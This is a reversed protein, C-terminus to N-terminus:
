RRSAPHAILGPRAAGLGAFLPPVSMAGLLIVAATWGGVLDHLLGVLFPGGAAFLYGYSQVMSSLGSAVEADSSRLGILTLVLVFGINTGVGLLVAWLIPQSGPAVALGTLGALTIAAAVVVLPRQDHLRGALLPAGLSTPISVIGILSLLLGAEGPSTGHQEFITPLWTVLAYYVFSQTAMTVTLKWAIPERRLMALPVRASGPDHHVFQGRRLLLSAVLALAVPAAWSALSPRWGGLAHQLPVALGAALAAGSSLAMTYVGTLLGVRGPFDRKVLAPLLVNGLAAGIGAVLTGSFLSVASPGLRLLQGVTLLALGAALAPELGLRRGIAPAVIAFVGFCLAPVTTLLGAVASSLGLTRQIPELLPPVAVVATRLNLAILTVAVLGVALSPSRLPQATM